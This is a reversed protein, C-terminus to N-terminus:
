EAGGMGQRLFGLFKGTPKPIFIFVALYSFMEEFIEHEYM